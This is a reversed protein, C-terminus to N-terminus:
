FLDKRAQKFQLATEFGDITADIFEHGDIGVKIPRSALREIANVLKSISSDQESTQRKFNTNSHGKVASDPVVHKFSPGRGKISEVFKSVVPIKPKMWETAEESKDLISSKERDIGITWGDMMMKGVQDRMWQSPSKIQLISKIKGTIAGTVEKIADSVAKVKSVIGTILGQIIDKGIQKLDIDGLPDVIFGAVQLIIEKTKNKLSNWNNIADTILNKIVNIVSTKLNNWTTVAWIALSSIISVISSKLGQWISSLTKSITTTVIVFHNKLGNWLNVAVSIFGTILAKIINVLSDWIKKGAEKINTWIQSLHIAFGKFDGTVLDIILLVAGLIVNKLLDWYASGITVLNEWITSVMTIFNNWINMATQSINTWVSMFFEILPAFIEKIRAIFFNWISVISIWLDSFFVAVTQWLGKFWEVTAAWAIKLAEWVALSAVKIIEWTDIFFAKIEDWYKYILFAAAAIAAVILGIILVIPNALFSMNLAIMAARLGKIVTTASKFALLAAKVTNIVAITKGLLYITSVAAMIGVVLAQLLTTNEKAFDGVVKFAPAVVNVIIEGLAKFALVIAAIVPEVIPIMNKIAPIITQSIATGVEKFVPLLQDFAPKLMKVTGNIVDPLKKFQDGFWGMFKRIHPMAPEMITAMTSSISSKLSDVSGRWSDKMEEMVGVMKKTEGAIGNTGNQIGDVLMDIAEKSDIAGSSIAKRMDDISMESKNALIALANVGNATLRNVQDLSLKGSLQMDGFAATIQDLGEAGKGSAAAADGIAQLTPIVKETDMGFAVMNKAATALQPFAFPTTKAFALVDEMFKDVKTIDGLMVKLAIRADEIASLRNIGSSILSAGSLIGILTGYQQVVGIASQFPATIGRQVSSGITDSVKIVTPSIGQLARNVNGASTMAATAFSSAGGALRSYGDLIRGSMTKGMNGMNKFATTSELSARVIPQSIGQGTRQFEKIIAESSRGLPVTLNRGFNTASKLADNESKALVNRVDGTMVRTRKQVEKASKDFSKPMTKGLKNFDKDLKDVQKKVDKDNLHVDIEVRGDSM